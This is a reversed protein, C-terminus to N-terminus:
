SLKAITDAAAQRAWQDAALIHDLGPAHIIEHSDMIGAIIGPIHHFSIKEDLLGNVAVENAANLVAPLTGGANAARFALALCAFKNLDPAEFTLQGLEFFDPFDLGTDLREPFTLAYAIAGKMDPVGLQAMVSGDTYGVMSHVISQPHVVVEIHDLPMDFLWHAEIVELGKNMMTASDITIKAGMDWNPHDLADAKTIQSFKDAPLTRFPGGSATLFIKQADAKRNGNLCQFIASHESDIPIIPVERAAAQAVVVEGAMVLTEKNALAITKGAEIAALTPKLGAAGVMAGVVTDTPDLTAADCYGSEGHSVETKSNSPLLTKLKNAATEDFVVALAPQFQKVQEALLEINTKATLAQISFRHPHRAVVDLTSRGISGTSGLITLNKMIPSSPNM